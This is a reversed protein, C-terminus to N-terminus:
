DSRRHRLAGLGWRLIAFIGVLALLRPVWQLIRVPLRYRELTDHEFGDNREARPVRTFLNPEVLEQRFSFIEPRDPEV